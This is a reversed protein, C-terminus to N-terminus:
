SSPWTVPYFQVLASQYRYAIRKSKRYVFLGLFTDLCPRNSETSHSTDSVTRGTSANCSILIPNFCFISILQNPKLCMGAPIELALGPLISMTGQVNPCSLRRPDSLPPRDRRWCDPVPLKGTM